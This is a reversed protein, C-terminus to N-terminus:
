LGVGQMIQLILWFIASAVLIIVWWIFVLMIPEIVKALNSILINLEGEYLNLINTLSNPLNATEEGVRIMVSVDTPILETENKLCDYISEGRQLGALVRELIDQYAAIWLISRLLQFTQIYNMGANLLLKMYRCRKVIYFYKTMKGILPIHLLVSFWIRKGSTTSFFVSSLFGIWVVVGLISKWQDILFDSINKLLQTTWPLQLTNFSVAISFINPLVFIFLSLVAVIAIVILIAPYMLAGIYKNKIDNLYIYEESLSKLVLPLEGSWEWARIVNYDGENFYDPLRNLAYSLSKGAYLFKLVDKAIEKLAYNDSSTNIIKLANVLSVWGNLLYSLEKFFLVKDRTGFSGRDSSELIKVIASDIINTSEQTDIKKIKETM